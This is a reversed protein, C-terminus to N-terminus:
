RITDANTFFRGILAPSALSKPEMGLDSLNGPTPFSLESWYEQWSIGHVSSGPESCDM